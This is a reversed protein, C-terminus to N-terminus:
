RARKRGPPPDDPPPPEDAAGGPAAGPAAGSGRAAPDSASVLVKLSEAARSNLQALADTVTARLVDQVQKTLDSMTASLPDATRPADGEQGGPDHGPPAPQTVGSGASGAVRFQEAVQAVSQQLTQQWQGVITQLVAQLEGAL